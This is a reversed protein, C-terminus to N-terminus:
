ALRGLCDELGIGLDRDAIGDENGSSECGVPRVGVWTENKREKMEVNEKERM